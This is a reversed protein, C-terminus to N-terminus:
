SEFKYYVESWMAYVWGTTELLKNGGDYDTGFDRRRWGWKTFEAAVSPQDPLAAQVTAPISELTILATTTYVKSVADIKVRPTYKPSFFRRRLLSFYSVEYSTLGMALMRYFKENIVDISGSTIGSALSIEILMEYWKTGDTIGKNLLAQFQAPDGVAKAAAAVDPHSFGDRTINETKWSWQDAPQAAPDDPDGAFTAELVWAGGREGEEVSWGDVVLANRQTRIEAKRGEWKQRTIIGGQDTRSYLRKGVVLASGKFTSM